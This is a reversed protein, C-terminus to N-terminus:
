AIIAPGFRRYRWCSGAVDSRLKSSARSDGDFSSSREGARPFICAVGTRRYWFKARRKPAGCERKKSAKGGVGDLDDVFTIDIKAFVITGAGFTFFNVDASVERGVFRRAPM